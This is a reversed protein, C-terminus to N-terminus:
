IENQWGTWTVIWAVAKPRNVNVTAVTRNSNIDIMM